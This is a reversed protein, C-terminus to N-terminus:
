PLYEEEAPFGFRARLNALSVSREGSWGLLPLLAADFLAAGDLLRHREQEYWERAVVMRVRAAADEIRAGWLDGEVVSGWEDSFASMALRLRALHRVALPAEHRRALAVRLASGDLALARCASAFARAYYRTAGSPLAHALLGLALADTATFDPEDACLVFYDGLSRALRRRLAPNDAAAGATM